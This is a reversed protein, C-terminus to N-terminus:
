DHEHSAGATPENARYFGSLQTLENPQARSPTLYDNVGRRIRQLDRALQGYDFHYRPEGAAPAAIKSRDAMQDIADLQKIILGLERAEFEEQALVPLPLLVALLILRPMSSFTM